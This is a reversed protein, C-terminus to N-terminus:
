LLTYVYTHLLMNCQAILAQVAVKYPMCTYVVTDGTAAM